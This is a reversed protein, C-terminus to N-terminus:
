ARVRVRAKKRTERANEEIMFIYTGILGALLVWGM